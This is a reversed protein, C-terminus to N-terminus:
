ELRRKFGAWCGATGMVACLLVFWDGWRTYFTLQDRYNFGVRSSVAQFSAAERMLRGAPDIAATIGDNTSRLIWRGNEAARM